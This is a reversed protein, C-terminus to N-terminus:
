IRCLIPLIVLEFVFFVVVFSIDIMGVAPIIRRVPGLLPETVLHLFRVVPIFPSGPSLPFWSFIARAILIILYLNGIACLPRGFSLNFL